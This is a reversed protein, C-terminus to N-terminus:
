SEASEQKAEIRKRNFVFLLGALIVGVVVSIIDGTPSVAWMEGYVTPEIFWHWTLWSFLTVVVLEGIFLNRLQMVHRSLPGEGPKAYMAYFQLALVLVALVIWGVTILM